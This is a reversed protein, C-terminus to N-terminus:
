VEGYMIDAYRPLTLNDSSLRKYLELQNVGDHHYCKIYLHGQDDYVVIRDYGQLLEALDDFCDIEKCGVTVGDWTNCAAKAVLRNNGMFQRMEDAFSDSLTADALLYDDINAYDDISEANSDFILRIM